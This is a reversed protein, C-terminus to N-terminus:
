SDSFGLGVAEVAVTLKRDAFSKGVTKTDGCTGEAWMEIHQRFHVMTYHYIPIYGRGEEANQTGLYIRSNSQLV